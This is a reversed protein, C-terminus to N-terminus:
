EPEIPKLKISDKEDITTETHDAPVYPTASTSMGRIPHTSTNGDNYRVSNDDKGNAPDHSACATFFLATLLLPVATIMKKMKM